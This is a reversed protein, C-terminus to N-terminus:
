TGLVMTSIPPGISVRIFGVATLVSATSRPMSQNLVWTMALTGHGCGPKM